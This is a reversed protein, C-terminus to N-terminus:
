TTLRRLLAPIREAMALVEADYVKELDVDFFGRVRAREYTDILQPLIETCYKVRLSEDYQTRWAFVAKWDDGLGSRRSAERPTLPYNGHLLADMRQALERLLQRIDDKEFETAPVQAPASLIPESPLPMGYSLRMDIHSASISSRGTLRILKGASTMNFGPAIHLETRISNNELTSDNHLSIVEPAEPGEDDPTM